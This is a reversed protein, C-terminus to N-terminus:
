KTAEEFEDLMYKRIREFTEFDKGGCPQGDLKDARVVLKSSSTVLIEDAARLQDLYYVEERVPIGLAKCAKILHARSIGPLILEDLPATWLTGDQLIHVNSHACETVRGGPRYLVAEGCGAQKAKESAMVAPLLNLTKVDCRHFRIDPETILQIPTRGDSMKLPTVTIWLNADSDPYVHQRVGTGRTVQWYLFLEGQDMKQVMEYLIRAMEEKSVPMTIEVEGANRYMRNLHEDLAFIKYNRVPGAEYIGDGFWSARDNMPVSMEELPGFKGNYYGLKEM